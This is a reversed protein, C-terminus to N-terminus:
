FEHNFNFHKLCSLKVWLLSHSLTQTSLKSEDTILHLLALLQKEVHSLDVVPHLYLRPIFHLKDDHLVLAVAFVGGATQAFDRSHRPDCLESLFNKPSMSSKHTTLLIILTLKLHPFFLM